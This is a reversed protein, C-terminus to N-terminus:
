PALTFVYDGKSRHGDWAVVKWYVHYKGPALAPLRAELRQQSEPDVQSADSIKKGQSDKVVLSSFVPELKDDFWIRVQKPSEHIVSGVGPEERQPFAHASAAAAWVLSVAALALLIGKRM